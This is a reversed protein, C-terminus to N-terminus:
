HTVIINDKVLLLMYIISSCFCFFFRLSVFLPKM